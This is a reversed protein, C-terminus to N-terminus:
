TGDLEGGKIIFQVDKLLKSIDGKRTFFQLGSNYGMSNGEMLFPGTRQTIWSALGEGVKKM